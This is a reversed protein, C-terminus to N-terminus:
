NCYKSLNLKIDDWLVVEEDYSIDELARVMPPPLGDDDGGVTEKTSPVLLELEDDSQAHFIGMMESVGLKLSPLVDSREKSRVFVFVDVAVDEEKDGDERDDGEVVHNGPRNLFGINYPLTGITDLTIALAESLHKLHKGTSSLQVCFVPYKLYSVEVVIEDNVIVDYIDYMEQVRSVPYCDWGDNVVKKKENSTATTPVTGEDNATASMIADDHDHDDDDRSQYVDRSTSKPELLPIPPCPWIHCHIHNQSAGAGVSNYGIFISGMPHITSTLHIVDYCDNKTFLQGRWNSEKYQEDITPIILFHGRSDAPSVNHYVDWPTNISGNNIASQDDDDGCSSSPSPMSLTAVLPRLQLRLPGTVFSDITEDYVPPESTTSTAFGPSPPPRLTRVLQLQAVFGDQDIRYNVTSAAAAQPEDEEEDDTMPLQQQLNSLTSNIKQVLEHPQYNHNKDEDDDVQQIVFEECRSISDKSNLRVGYQVNAMKPELSTEGSDGNTTTDDTNDNDYPIQVTASVKGDQVLQIWRSSIDISSISYQPQGIVQPINNDDDVDLMARTGSTPDGMMGDEEGTARRLKTSIRSTQLHQPQYYRPPPIVFGTGVVALHSLILLSSSLLLAPGRNAVLLKTQRPFIFSSEVLTNNVINDISRRM